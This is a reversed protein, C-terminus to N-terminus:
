SRTAARDPCGFGPRPAWRRPTVRLNAVVAATVPGAQPGSRPDSRTRSVGRDCVSASARPLVAGAGGEDGLRTASRCPGCRTVHKPVAGTVYVPPWQKLCAGSCKIKGGAKKEVDWYYIGLRTPTAIVKGINSRTEIAPKMSSAPAAVAASVAVVSAAVAALTLLLFRV